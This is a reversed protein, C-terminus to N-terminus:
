WRYKKDINKCYEVLADDASVTQPAHSSGTALSNSFQANHNIIRLYFADKDAEYEARLKNDGDTLWGAPVLDRVRSWADAKERQEREARLKQIEALLAEKETADPDATAVLGDSATDEATDDAVSNCVPVATQPQEAILVIKEPKHEPQPEPKEDAKTATDTNIDVAAIEPPAPEVPTAEATDSEDGTNRSIKNAITQLLGRIGRLEDTAMMEEMKSQEGNVREGADADARSNCFMAANDRGFCTPTAGQRFLLVHNPVVNGSLKYLPKGDVDGDKYQGCSFGTSMALGGLNALDSLNSHADDIEIDAELRSAGTPPIYADKIRGVVEYGQPLRHEAVASFDPHVGAHMQSNAFIVPVNHWDALTGAFSNRSLMVMHSGYDIPTDLRQLIAHHNSRTEGM